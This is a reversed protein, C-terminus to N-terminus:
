DEPTLTEVIEMNTFRAIRIPKGQENAIKQAIKKIDKVRGMDAGILPFNQGLLMISPIGEDDPGGDQAICAYLETIKPM